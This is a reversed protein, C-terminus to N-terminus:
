KSFIDKLASDISSFEFQFKNDILFKPYVKQSRLVEQSAEGLIIKVAFAPVRFFAPRKLAQGMARAFNNMQVQGPSVANAIGTLQKEIAFLYVNMLDKIHIWPFWQVGSAIPGGVFLKYPLLMEKLAGGDKTLVIGIRLILCKSEVKQAEEEWDTCISAIFGTDPSIDETLNKNGRDGYFGVASTSIFYPKENTLNIANVLLKTTNIRSDYLEKKYEKNWRKGVVNAGALNIVASAGELIGALEQPNNPYAISNESSRRSLIFVQFGNETLINKLRQGILGSGGAIYIIKNM